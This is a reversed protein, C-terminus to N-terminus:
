HIILKYLTKGYVTASEIEAIGPVWEIDYIMTGNSTDEDLQGEGVVNAVLFREAKNGFPDCVIKRNDILDFNDACNESIEAFDNTFMMFMFSTAPFYFTDEWECIGIKIQDLTLPRNSATAFNMSAIVMLLVLIKKM